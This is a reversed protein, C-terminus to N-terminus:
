FLSSIKKEHECCLFAKMLFLMVYVDCCCNDCFKDILDGAFDEAVCFGVRNEVEGDEAVGQRDELADEAEVAHSLLEVSGNMLENLPLTCCKRQSHTKDM